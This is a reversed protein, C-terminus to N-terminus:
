LRELASTGLRRLQRKTAADEATVDITIVDNGEFVLLQASTVAPSSKSTRFVALDGLGKLIVTGPQRRESRKGDEVSKKPLRSSGITVELSTPEERPPAWTCISQDDTFLVELRAGLVEDLDDATLLECPATATAADLAAPAGVVAIAFTVAFMLGRM